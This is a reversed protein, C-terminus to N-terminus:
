PTHTEKFIIQRHRLAGQQHVEFDVGTEVITFFATALTNEDDPDAARRFVRVSCCIIYRLM